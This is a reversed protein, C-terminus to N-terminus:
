FFSSLHTGMYVLWMASTVIGNLCSTIADLHQLHTFVAIGAYVAKGISRVLQSVSIYM